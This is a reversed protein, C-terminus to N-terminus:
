WDGDLCLIDCVPPKLAEFKLKFALRLGGPFSVKVEVVLEGRKHKGTCFFPPLFYWTFICEWLALNAPFFHRLDERGPQKNHHAFWPCPADEEDLCKQPKNQQYPSHM